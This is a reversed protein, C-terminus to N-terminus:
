PQRGYVLWALVKKNLDRSPKAAFYAAHTRAELDNVDTHQHCDGLSVLGCPAALWLQDFETELSEAEKPTLPPNGVWAMEGKIISLIRPLRQIIFNSSNFDHFRFEHAMSRKQWTHPSIAQNTTFARGKRLRLIITLLLLIPSTGLLLLLASLRGFFSPGFENALCDSNDLRSLLFPDRIELTSGTKWNVLSPGWAISERLETDCGVYTRQAVQSEEVIVGKDVLCEDEIITNPGITVKDAIYVNRGIWCPANLKVSEPIRAGIGVWIDPKKEIMGLQNAGASPLYAALSKFLNEYNSFLSTANNLPFRDLTFVDGENLTESQKELITRLEEINTEHKTPHYIIELGWKEGKLVQARVLEPRDSLYLQISRYGQSALATLAHDILSKGCFPLLALPMLEALFEMGPRTEACILRATKPM